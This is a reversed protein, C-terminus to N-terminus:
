VVTNVIDVIYVTQNTTNSYQTPVIVTPRTTKSFGFFPMKGQFKKSINTKICVPFHHIQVQHFFFELQGKYNYNSCGDQYKLFIDQSHSSLITGTTCSIFFIGISGFTGHYGQCTVSSDYVHLFM